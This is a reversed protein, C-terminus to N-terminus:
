PRESVPPELSLRQNLYKPRPAQLTALESDSRGSAQAQALTAQLFVLRNQLRQLATAAQANAVTTITGNVAQKVALLQNLLAVQQTGVPDTIQASLTQMNANVQDYSKKVALRRVIWETCTLKM